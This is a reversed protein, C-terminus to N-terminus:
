LYFLLYAFLYSAPVVNHVKCSPYLVVHTSALTCHLHRLEVPLAALLQMFIHPYLRMSLRPTCRYAFTCHSDIHDHSLIYPHTSRIATASLSQHSTNSLSAAHHPYSSAAHRLTTDDNIFIAALIQHPGSAKIEALAGSRTGQAYPITL